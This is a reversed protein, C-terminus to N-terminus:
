KGGKLTKEYEAIVEKAYPLEEQPIYEDHEQGFGKFRVRYLRIKKRGVKVEDHHVIKGIEMEQGDATVVTTPFTQDRGFPDPENPYAELQTVSVADHIKLLKPLQLRHANISFKETITYPGIRQLSYKHGWARDPLKYGKHLCLLVKDGAEFSIPQRKEDFRQKAQIATFIIADRAAAVARHRPEIFMTAKSDKTDATIDFAM